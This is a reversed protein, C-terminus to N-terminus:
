RAQLRALAAFRGCPRAARDSFFPTGPGTGVSSVEINGPQLGAEVLIRRNAAWLDFLWRGTGDPRVVDDVAAPDDAFCDRAAEAVEDGVQYRDATIAPGIGAVIGGQDAGLGTMAEVAAETIRAVTGRWGAHVAGLVHAGPDYLVLPVCDGVLVALGLDPTATVVADCPVADDVTRTGRGRDRHDVVAVDRGHTQHCFVIDDLDLRVTTAARRRNEVVREADDGVHLGLNLSEYPGTSVGGERTTVVADVQHPEFCRWTTASLGGVRGAGRTASRSM